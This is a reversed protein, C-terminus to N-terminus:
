RGNKRTRGMTLEPQELPQSYSDGGSGYSKLEFRERGSTMSSPEKKITTDSNNSGVDFYSAPQHDDAREEFSSSIVSNYAGDSQRAGIDDNNMRIMRRGTTLGPQEIKQGFSMSGTDYRQGTGDPNNKYDSTGGALLSSGNNYGTMTTMSNNGRETLLKRSRDVPNRRSNGTGGYANFKITEEEMSPITLNRREIIDKTRRSVTTHKDDSGDIGNVGRGVTMEPQEIKQGYSESGTGYSKLEIRKQQQENRGWPNNDDEGRALHAFASKSNSSRSDGRGVSMEPQEIKESYSRAGTGYSSIREIKGSPSSTFEDNYMQQQQQNHHQQQPLINNQESLKHQQQQQQSLSQGNFPYLISALSSKKYHYSFIQNNSNTTFSFVNTRFSLKVLFISVFLCGTTVNLPMSMM